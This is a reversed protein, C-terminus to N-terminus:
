EQARRAARLRLALEAAVLVLLLLAVTPSADIAAHSDGLTRGTTAPAAARPRLDIERAVAAAVRLEKRGDVV